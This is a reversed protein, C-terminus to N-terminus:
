RGAYGCAENDENSSSSNSDGFNNNDTNNSDDSRDSYNKAKGKDTVNKSDKNKSEKTLGNIFNDLIYNYSNNARYEPPRTNYPSICHQPSPSTPWTTSVM